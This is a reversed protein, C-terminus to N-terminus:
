ALNIYHLSKSQNRKEKFFKNWVHTADVFASTKGIRWEFHGM